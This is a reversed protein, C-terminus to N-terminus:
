RSTCNLILCLYLSPTMYSQADKSHLLGKNRGKQHKLGDRYGGKMKFFLNKWKYVTYKHTTDAQIAHLVLVLNRLQGIRYNNYNSTSYQRVGDPFKFYGTGGSTSNSHCYVNIYTSSMTGMLIFSNNAVARDRIYYSGQVYM